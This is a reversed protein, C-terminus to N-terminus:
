SLFELVFEVGDLFHEDDPNPAIERVEHCVMKLQPYQWSFHRAAYMLGELRDEHRWSAEALWEYFAFGITSDDDGTLPNITKTCITTGCDEGFMKEIQRYTVVIKTDLPISFFGLKVVNSLQWNNFDELNMEHSM